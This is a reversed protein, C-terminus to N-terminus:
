ARCSFPSLSNFGARVETRIRTDKPPLNLKNKWDGEQGAAAQAAAM